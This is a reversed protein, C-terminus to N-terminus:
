KAEIHPGVMKFSKHSFHHLSKRYQFLEEPDRRFSEKDAETYDPGDGPGGLRLVNGPNIDPIIWTPTRQFSVISTGPLKALSPLIQIASSGNGIIAIRKHSFGYSWDWSASHVKHGKFDQLGPIDPWNWTDLVGQGSILVHAYETRKTRDHDVELEWQGLETRWSAAVVRTNLQVDRDLNWKKVTRRIYAEIDAGSSYFDSWDPNPDFPFGYIHSPVDCRVGPYTNVLWTGGVDARAEFITHDVMSEMEPFEYRLKHAFILGSFGAGITVVRLKGSTSYAPTKRLLPELDNGRTDSALKTTHCANGNSQHEETRSPHRENIGNRATESKHIPGNQSPPEVFLGENAIILGPGSKSAANATM